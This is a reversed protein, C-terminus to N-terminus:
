KKNQEKAEKWVREEIRRGVAQMGKLCLTSITGLLALAVAAERKKM